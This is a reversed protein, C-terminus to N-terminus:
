WRMKVWGWCSILVVNKHFCISVMVPHFAVNPICQDLSNIHEVELLDGVYGPIASSSGKKNKLSTAWVGVLSTIIYMYLTYIYVCWSFPVGIQAGRNKGFQCWKGHRSAGFISWKGLWFSVTKALWDMKLCLRLDHGNITIYYTCM